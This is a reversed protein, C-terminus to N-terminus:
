VKMLSQEVTIRPFQVVVIVFVTEWFTFNAVHPILHIDNHRTMFRSEPIAMKILAMKSSKEQLKGQEEEM